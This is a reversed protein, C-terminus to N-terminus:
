TTSGAVSQTASRVTCVHNEFWPRYEVECWDLLLLLVSLITLIGSRTSADGFEIKTYV